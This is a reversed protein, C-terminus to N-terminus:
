AARCDLLAPRPFGNVRLLQAFWWSDTRFRAPFPSACAEHIDDAMGKSRGYRYTHTGPVTRGSIRITKALFAALRVLAPAPLVGNTAHAAGLNM